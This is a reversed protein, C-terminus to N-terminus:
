AGSQTNTSSLARQQKDASRKREVARVITSLSGAPLPETKVAAYFTRVRKGRGGERFSKIDWGFYRLERLRKQWDEQFQRASAVAGVLDSPVREGEFALLLAAIRRHPEDHAAADRIRDAYRDFSGYYAKKGRNCEECLPQLNDLDDTGGWSQPLVHDVELKVGDEAVTRGCVNCKGPALVQFRLRKSIPSAPALPIARTGVLQYRHGPVSRVDFIESIQRRRRQLQSYSRGAASSVFETIELDTPPDARREYLCAYIHQHVLSGYKRTRLLDVLQDSYPAPLSGQPQSLAARENGDESNGM